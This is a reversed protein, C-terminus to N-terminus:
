KTKKSEAYKKILIKKMRELNRAGLEYNAEKLIEIATELKTEWNLVQDLLLPNEFINEEAFVKERGMVLRFDTFAPPMGVRVSWHAFDELRDLSSKMLINQTYVFWEKDSEKSIEIFKLLNGEVQGWKAGKRIYEYTSGISDLSVSLSIKRKKKLYDLHKDLLTANTYLFLETNDFDNDDVITKIFKASEPMLLCEGGSVEIRNMKILDNKAKLLWDSKLSIKEETKRVKAQLCMICDINCLSGFIIQLCIPTAKTILMSKEYDEIAQEQNNRQEESINKKIKNSHIDYYEDSSQFFLCNRCGEAENKTNLDSNIFRINQLIENNWIKKINLDKNLNLDIFDGKYFCCPRIRKSIQSIFLTKWPASCRQLSQQKNETMKIDKKLRM